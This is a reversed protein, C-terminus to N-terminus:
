SCRRLLVCGASEKQTLQLHETLFINKFIECFEFVSWRLRKGTLKAFKKLVDTTM